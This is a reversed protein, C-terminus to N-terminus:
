CIKALRLCARWDGPYAEKNLRYNVGIASQVLKYEPSEYYHKLVWTERSHYVTEFTISNDKTWAIIDCVLMPMLIYDNCISSKIIVYYPQNFLNNLELYHMAQFISLDDYLFGLPKFREDPIAQNVYERPLQHYYNSFTVGEPQRTCASSMDLTPIFKELSFKDFNYILESIIVNDSNKKQYGKDSSCFECKGTPKMIFYTRCNKCNHM